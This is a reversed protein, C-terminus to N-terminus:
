RALLARIARAATTAGDIPPREPPAPQGLLADVEDEWGGEFLRDHSIYRCRLIRPMGTVFVEYEAFRGRSTYLLAAGNAVCESVIGYGPKSVVVDSAAVIDQYKLGDPPHSFNLLTFAGSERLRDYPLAAGYAGFSTLVVPKGDAVGLRRRTEAPPVVSKRAIFPVDDTRAAIPEFGGHLPLRLARGAQGYADEIVPLVHPARARFEPYFEYIWDWTFNGIAMSPVGARAAAAFALPPIDGIVLDAHARTLEAAEREVRAEFGGYFAAALRVTEDVDLRLSDIQAVGTDTEVHQVDLAAHASDFLWRPVTTRVVVRADPLTAALENILEIDRSAHGFGHGSIYFYILLCRDASHTEM